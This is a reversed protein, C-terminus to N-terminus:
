FYKWAACDGHNTGSHLTLCKHNRLTYINSPENVRRVLHNGNYLCPIKNEVHLFNFHSLQIYKAKSPIRKDENHALNGKRKTIRSVSKGIIKAHNEM